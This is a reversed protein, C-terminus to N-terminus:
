EKEADKAGGKLDTMFTHYGNLLAKLITVYDNTKNFFDLLVSLHNQKNLNAM